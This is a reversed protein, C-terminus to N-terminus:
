KRWQRLAPTVSMNRLIRSTDIFTQRGGLPLNVRDFIQQPNSRGNEGTVMAM